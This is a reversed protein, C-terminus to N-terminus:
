FVDALSLNGCKQLSHKTRGLRHPIECPFRVHISFKLIFLYDKGLKTGVLVIPVGPAYHRLEPIWQPFICFIEDAFAYNKCLCHM